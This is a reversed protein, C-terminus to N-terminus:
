GNKKEVVTGRFKLWLYLRLPQVLLYVLPALFRGPRLKQMLTPGPEPGPHRRAAERALLKEMRDPRFAPKQCFAALPAITDTWRYRAAVNRANTKLVALDSDGSLISRVLRRFEHEDGPDLVWGCNGERVVHSLESYNNYIVPLGCHLYVMTRTTFALEREPNRAMLDVAVDGEAAYEEMLEDFGRWGRVEVRPSSQLRDLLSAFKGASADIVPHTGGYFLLRGKGASEMEELLWTIANTPDQWALFAGGYIFTPDSSESRAEPQDPPVSFPIVPPQLSLLDFGAMLLFAYFYHRQYEGSCTVFDARQLASVKEDLDRAPNGSGWYARELLHPGALDIVLPVTLEPVEAALGWHQLVVVTPRVEELLAAIANRRFFRVHSSQAPPLLDPTDDGHVPTGIYVELGSSRLGEALGWARLGAGTTAKGPLPLPETTLVLVRNM